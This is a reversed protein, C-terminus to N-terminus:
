KVSFDVEFGVKFLERKSPISISSSTSESESAVRMLMKLNALPTLAEEESKTANDEKVPTQENKNSCNISNTIEGFPRRSIGSLFDSILLTLIKEM